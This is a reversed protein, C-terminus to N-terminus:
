QLTSHSSFLFTVHVVVNCTEGPRVVMVSADCGVARAAEGSSLPASTSAAWEAQLVERNSMISKKSLRELVCTIECTDRGSAPAQPSPTTPARVAPYPRPKGKSLLHIGAGAASQRVRVPPRVARAPAWNRWSSGAKFSIIPNGCSIHNIRSGLSFITYPVM